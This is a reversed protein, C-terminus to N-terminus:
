HCPQLRRRIAAREKRHVGAIWKEFLKSDEVLRADERCSSDTLIKYVQNNKVRKLFGDRLIRM